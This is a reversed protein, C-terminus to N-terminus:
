HPENREFIKFRNLKAFYINCNFASNNKLYHLRDDKIHLNTEEIVKRKVVEKGMEGLETKGCIVQYKLYMPKNINIRQSMYVGKDNYLIVLVFRLAIEHANITAQHIFLTDEEQIKISVEWWLITTLEVRDM